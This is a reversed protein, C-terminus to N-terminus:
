RDALSLIETVYRRCNDVHPHPVELEPGINEICFQLMATITRHNTNPLSNRLGRNSVGSRRYILEGAAGSPLAGVTHSATGMGTLLSM